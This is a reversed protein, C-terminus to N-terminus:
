PEPPAAGPGNSSPGQSSGGSPSSGSGSPNSGSSAGGSPQGAPNGGGTADDGRGWRGDNLNFMGRLRGLLDTISTLSFAKM